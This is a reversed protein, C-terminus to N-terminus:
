SCLNISLLFHHIQLNKVKNKLLGFVAALFAGLQLPEVDGALIMRAAELMEDETLPRSLKPGKGIIRVFQAFPHEM